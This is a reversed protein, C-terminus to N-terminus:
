ILRLSDEHNKKMLEMEKDKFKDKLEVEKKQVDLSNKERELKVLHQVEQMEIKKQLKVTELEEKAVYLEVKAKELDKAFSLAKLANAEGFAIAENVAEVIYKKIESKNNKFWM